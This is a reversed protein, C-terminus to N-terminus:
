QSYLNPNFFRTRVKHADSCQRRGDDVPPKRVMWRWWLHKVAYWLKDWRISSGNTHRQEVWALRMWNTCIPPSSAHCANIDIQGLPLHTVIERIWSPASRVLSPRSGLQISRKRPPHAATKLGRIGNAIVARRHTPWGILYFKNLTSLMCFITGFPLRMYQWYWEYKTLGHDEPLSLSGRQARRFLAMHQGFSSNSVQIHFIHNIGIAILNQSFRQTRNCSSSM